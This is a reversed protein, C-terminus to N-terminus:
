MAHRLSPASGRGAPSLTPTLPCRGRSRTYGRVRRAERPSREWLSLHLSNAARKRWSWRESRM